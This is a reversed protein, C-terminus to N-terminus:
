YPAHSPLPAPLSPHLSPYAHHPQLALPQKRSFLFLALLFQKILRLLRYQNKAVGM